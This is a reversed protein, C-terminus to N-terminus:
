GATDWIQLKIHRDDVNLTKTKFDVGITIRYDSNFIKDSFRLLLSTKGAGSDGVMVVKYIAHIKKQRVNEAETDVRPRIKEERQKRTVIIKPNIKSM